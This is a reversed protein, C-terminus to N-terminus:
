TTGMGEKFRINEIGCKNITLTNVRVNPIVINLQSLKEKLDPQNREIETGTEKM